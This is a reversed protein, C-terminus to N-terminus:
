VTAARIIDVERARGAPRFYTQDRYFAPSQDNWWGPVGLMPFPNLTRPSRLIGQSLAGAIQQDLFAQQERLSWGFFADEVDVLLAHATLGVYPTMLKELMAHGFMFCAIEQGWAGKESCFLTQWAFTEILQLLDRRSAAIIVGSEDLVTLADRQPTRKKDTQQALDRAHSASIQVKSQPFLGWILANFFDHWNAKRTSVIGQQYIREEYYLEPFPLTHDQPLFRIRAGSQSRLGEPLVAELDHADPWERFGQWVTCNHLQQFCPSLTAFVPNWLDSM